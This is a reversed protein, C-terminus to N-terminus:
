SPQISKLPFALSLDEENLKMLETCGELRQTLVISPIGFENRKLDVLRVFVKSAMKPNRIQAITFSV